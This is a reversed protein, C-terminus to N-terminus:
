HLTPHLTRNCPTRQRRAVARRTVADVQPRGPVERVAVAVGSPHQARHDCVGVVLRQPDVVVHGAVLQPRGSLRAVRAAVLRADVDPRVSTIQPVVRRAGSEVAEDALVAVNDDLRM